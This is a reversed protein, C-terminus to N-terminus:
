LVIKASNIEKEPVTGLRDLRMFTLEIHYFTKDFIPDVQDFRALAPFAAVKEDDIVGVSVVRHVTSSSLLVARLAIPVLFPVEVVVVHNPLVLAPLQRAVLHCGGVEVPTYVCVAPLWKQLLDFKVLSRSKIGPLPLISLSLRSSAPLLILLPLSFCPTRM